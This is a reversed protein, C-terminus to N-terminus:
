EVRLGTGQARREEKIESANLIVLIPLTFPITADRRKDESAKKSWRLKLSPPLSPPCKKLVLKKSFTCGLIKKKTAGDSKRYYEVLNDL